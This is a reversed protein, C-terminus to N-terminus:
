RPAAPVSKEFAFRKTDFLRLCADVVGADYLLERKKLIEELAAGIGFAPRYPRYSAIAEVVDAVAVIRAEPLIDRGALGQPYGSGDSREHHQLVIQAIPWPFEVEKLIDYGTKSHTKILNFEMETLKTPKSLIEAPISIKGLDHIAGAMGIGAIADDRLGMERGIATALDAVRRQHGATYPDRRDVTLAMAQITGEFAKQLRNYNRERERESLKRQSIDHLIGATGVEGGLYTLTMEVDVLRGSKALRQTEWARMFGKSRVEAMVREATAREQEPILIEVNRGTAEDETYGFMREAGASWLTIRRRPDVVLIADMSMELLTHFRHESFELERSTRELAAVKAELKTNLIGAYEKLIEGERGTRLSVDRQEAQWYGLVEEVTSLFTKSDAPKRIFREAGMSEALAEAKTDTYTGTYFIFPISKLRDDKKCEHCLTYGDMVPMLIDSIIVDPPNRKATALAEAGNSAVVAEYGHREMLLRLMERSQEDDDVTLIRAM